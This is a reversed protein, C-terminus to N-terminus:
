FKSGQESASPESAAAAIILIDIDTRVSMVKDLLQYSQSFTAKKLEVLWM